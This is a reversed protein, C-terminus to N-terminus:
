LALAGATSFFTFLTCFFITGAQVGQKRQVGESEIDNASHWHGDWPLGKIKRRFDYALVIPGNNKSKRKLDHLM